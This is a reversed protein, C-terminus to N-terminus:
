LNFSYQSYRHAVRIYNLEYNAIYYKECQTIIKGGGPPQLKERGEEPSTSRRMMWSLM